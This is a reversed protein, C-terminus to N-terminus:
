KGLAEKLLANLRRRLVNPAEATLEQESITMMFQGKVWSVKLRKGLVPVFRGPEQVHGYEVYSAYSVPNTLTVRYEKGMHEVKLANVYASIDTGGSKAAEESVATWGRRLTGGSALRKLKVEGKRKGRKYKVTGGAKGRVVEFQGKGVPTRKIVKRLFRAALEKCCDKYFQDKQDESLKTLRDRFRELDKFNGKAM